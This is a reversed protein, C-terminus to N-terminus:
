RGEGRGGVGIRDKRVGHTHGDRAASGVASGVCSVEICTWRCWRKVVENRDTDRDTDRCYLIRIGIGIKLVIRTM